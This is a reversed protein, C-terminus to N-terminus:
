SRVPRRIEWAFEGKDVLRWPLSGWAPQDGLCVRGSRRIEWDAEGLGVRTM